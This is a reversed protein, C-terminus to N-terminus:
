KGRSGENRLNGPGNAPSAVIAILGIYGTSGTCDSAVSNRVVSMASAANFESQATPSYLRATGRRM